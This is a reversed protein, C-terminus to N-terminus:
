RRLAPMFGVFDTTYIKKLYKQILQKVPSSNAVFQGEMTDGVAQPLLRETSDHPLPSMTVGADAEGLSQLRLNRYVICSNLEFRVPFVVHGRCYDIDIRLITLFV